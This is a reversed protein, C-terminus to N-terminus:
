TVTGTGCRFVQLAMVPNYQTAGKLGVANRLPHNLFQFSSINTAAARGQPGPESYFVM